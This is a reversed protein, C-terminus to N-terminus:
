KRVMHQELGKVKHIDIFNYTSKFELYFNHSLWLRNILVVSIKTALVSFLLVTFYVLFIPGAFLIIM